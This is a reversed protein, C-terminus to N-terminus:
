EYYNKADGSAEPPMVAETYDPLGHMRRWRNVVELAGEIDARPYLKGDIAVMLHTVGGGANGHVEPGMEEAHLRKGTDNADAM